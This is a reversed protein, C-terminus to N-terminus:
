DVLADMTAATAAVAGTRCATRLGATADLDWHIVISPRLPLQRRNSDVTSDDSSMCCDMETVMKSARDSQGWYLDLGNAMRDMSRGRENVTRDVVMGHGNVM